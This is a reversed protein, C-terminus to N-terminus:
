VATAFTDAAAHPSLSSESSSGGALFGAPFAQTLMLLAAEVRGGRIFDAVSGLFRPLGGFCMDLYTMDPTSVVNSQPRSSDITQLIVLCKYTPATPLSLCDVPPQSLTLKVCNVAVGCRYM